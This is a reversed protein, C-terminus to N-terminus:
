PLATRKRFTQALTGRYQRTRRRLRWAVMWCFAAGLGPATGGRSSVACGGGSSAVPLTSPTAGRGASAGGTAGAGGAGASPVVGGSGATTAGGTTGGSAVSGAAGANATAGGTVPPVGASGGDGTTVVCGGALCASGVPCLDGNDVEGDCDDDLNNCFETLVPGPTCHAPDCDYSERLCRGIGCQPRLYEDVEGDCDDDVRNCTEAAGPNVAPDTRACDGPEAAYNKTGSCGIVPTGTMSQYYGDGDEDPWLEVLEANEDIEGNCDDDKKNCKEVATPFVVEDSDNCDDDRTSLGPPPTADVCGIATGFIPTGYGDRDNDAYLVVPDCGFTALFRGLGAVDGSSRGDGNGALGAADIVLGGPQAPARWGFRFTAVGGVAQKPQSHTLGAGAVFSLGEGAITHLEGLAPLLISVGGVGATGEKRRVTVTFTVDDGPAFSAPSATLEVVAGEDSHCSVCDTGIFGTRRAEAERTVLAVAALSLAWAVRARRRLGFDSAGQAM